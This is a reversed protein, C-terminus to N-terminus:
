KELEEPTPKRGAVCYTYSYGHVKGSLVDKFASKCLATAEEQSLGGFRTFFGIGYAEFGTQCNITMAKGLQKLHKDKAWMGWPIPLKKAIVDVFGAGEVYKKFDELSPFSVGAAKASKEYTHHWKYLNTEPTYTDDDCFLQGGPHENLEVWGGPTTAQYARKMLEPWDRVSMVVDRMHIFDFSNDAYTWPQEFNDIEFKVNPLTWSPQIASLDTGIVEAEPHMEGFDLAWIGTGTGLDLVRHLNKEKLPAVYLEGRMTLLNVHHQIDLRDQETEDNPLAYTGSALRHYRRGNEFVYDVISSKLSTTESAYTSEYDSTSDEAELPEHYETGM